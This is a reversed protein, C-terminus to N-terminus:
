RSRSAGPWHSRAEETVDKPAEGMPHEPVHGGVRQALGIADFPARVKVDNDFYVYVDRSARKRAKEASAHIADKVESGKRWAKVRDSWRDLAEATYGSVYIQEDGHLRVYVFDSTVDEFFPWKGATEAVVLAVNYKRLLKVFEPSRFSDHRIEVAHRLKHNKAVEFFTRKKMRADHRRALKAASTHDRPLLEFFREFKGADFRFGPPFQWLIPGLKEKLALVGQAFFNALPADIEKLRKMHTIFRGGKVSFVFGKPTADYWQKWSGVEQLSYFSGNIEISNFQRSAFELERKQALDEPYFTGRWPEYRWGSIGIRTQPM